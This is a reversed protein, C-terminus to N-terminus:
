NNELLGKAATVRSVNKPPQSPPQREYARPGAIHCAKGDIVKSGRPTQRKRSDTGIDYGALLIM